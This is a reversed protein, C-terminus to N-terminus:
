RAARYCSGTTHDRRIHQRFGGIMTEAVVLTLTGVNATQQNPDQSGTQIQADMVYASIDDGSTAFSGDSDWDVCVVWTITM